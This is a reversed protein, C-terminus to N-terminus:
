KSSSRIDARLLEDPDNASNIDASRVLEDASAVNASSGRLLSQSNATLAARQNLYPLCDRAAQCVDRQRASVPRANALQMVYPISSSDGVQALAQLISLLFEKDNQANSLILMRHLNGRQQATTLVKDSAKVRRLLRTLAGIAVRRVTADPWDLSEALRGICRVDEVKSLKRALLRHEARLTLRYLQTSGIGAITCALAALLHKDIIQLVTQVAFYPFIVVWSAILYGMRMGPVQLKKLGAEFEAMQADVLADFQAAEASEKETLTGADGTVVQLPTFSTVNADEEHSRPASREAAIRRELPAVTSRAAIMLRHADRTLPVSDAIHEVYPLAADTGITPLANLIAMALEADRRAASFTLRRYLCTRHEERFMRADAETLRPLKQTLLRAAAERVDRDPWELAECMPGLWRNDLDSNKLAARDANRRALSVNLARLTALGFLWAPAWGIEGSNLIALLGILFIPTAAIWVWHVLGRRARFLPDTLKDALTEVDVNETQELLRIADPALEVTPVSLDQTESENYSARSSAVLDSEVQDLHPNRHKTFLGIM